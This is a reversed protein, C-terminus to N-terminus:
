LTSLEPLPPLMLFPMTATGVSTTDEDENVDDGGDGGDEDGRMRLM